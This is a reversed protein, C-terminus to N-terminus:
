QSDMGTSTSTQLPWFRVVPLPELVLPLGLTMELPETTATASPWHMHMTSFPLTTSTQASGPSNM